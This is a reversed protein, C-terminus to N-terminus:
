FLMVWLVMVFLRNVCLCRLEVLSLLFIVIGCLWMLFRLCGSVVNMWRVLVIGNLVGLLWGILRRIKRSMGLCVVWCCRLIRDFIM